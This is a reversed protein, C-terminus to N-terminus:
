VEIVIGGISVGASTGIVMIKNGKKLKGSEKLIHWSLPMCASITNGYDQIIKVIRNEDKPWLMKDGVLKMALESGQHPVVFDIDDMTCNAEKLLEEVFKTGYKMSLRVVKKGDMSFTFDKEGRKEYERPHIFAGGGRVETFHAGESYTEIKSALIKSGIKEKDQSIIFAVAGDGFLSSNEFNSFDLGISAIESSVIIINKFRGIELPYSIMDLGVLFSLCTSNIDFATVGTGQLGLEEQILSANCPIPQQQTGSTALILDIESLDMKADKLAEEIAYKAMLSNTENEVYHRKKVGTRKETTGEKIGYIKDLEKSEVIRKPIYKGTGRLIFNRIM